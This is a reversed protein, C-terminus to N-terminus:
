RRWRKPAPRASAPTPPGDARACSVIASMLVVAFVIVRKVVLAVVPTCVLVLIVLAVFAIVLVVVLM